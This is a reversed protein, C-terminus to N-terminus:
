GALIRLIDWMDADSSGIDYRRIAWVGVVKWIGVLKGAMAIAACDCCLRRVGVDGWAKEEFSCVVLSVPIM